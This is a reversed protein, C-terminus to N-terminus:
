KKRRPIPHEHDLDYFRRPPHDSRRTVAADARIAMRQSHKTQPLPNTTVFIAENFVSGSNAQAVAFVGYAQNFGITICITVFSSILVGIQRKQTIPRLEIDADPSSDPLPSSELESLSHDEHAGALPIAVTAPDM